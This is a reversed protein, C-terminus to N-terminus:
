IWFKLRCVDEADELFEDRRINKPPFKMGEFLRVSGASKIFFVNKDNKKNRCAVNKVRM